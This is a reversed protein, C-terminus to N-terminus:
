LIKVELELDIKHNIKVQDRVLEILEMVDRFSAGGPNIIFNAHRTSIEARGIRRGKLGLIEILQGGTFQLDKPNKFICGASPIDLVQKSKKIGLFDRSRGILTKPSLGTRKLRLLAELVVFDSLNSSYSKFVLDKKTLRKPKGDFDIAELSEVFEGINRYIPNNGGGANMFVAGGVSGPIGILSELGELGEMCCADILKSLELGAGVKVTEGRILCGKFFPSNLKIVVGRFGQDRVLINSGKGVIFAPVGNEKSLNLAHRLDRTDEPEVWIDCPGGINFTTHPALVEDFKVKGRISKKFVERLNRVMERKKRAGPNKLKESLEDAIDKIDGAGLVLIADGSKADQAVCDSIDEKKVMVVDRQGSSRACDYISRVSVGEIPEESAAYIDTLVLRDAGKFCKGFEDALYKTRSYRHPQFIVILRKPRWNSSAEIVARIETPHHAYDEILLIGRTNARLQFRRKTGRFDRIYRCADDFGLGAALGVSISALSNLVNYTGPIKLRVEGMDKGRYVCRYRTNFKYMRIDEPHIEGKKSLGFTRTQGKHGKLVKNTNEDDANYFLIGGKKVNKIFSSYTQLLHKTDKYYDVHEMEINTIVAYHPKLYLFTGDSEDVEAVVWEGNGAKANSKLYDIEGGIAVTPDLGAKAMMVSILSATTTKGHTGTVAIGKKRNMLEGLLSARHAIFIGKERAKLIEPNDASIASSYVVGGIDRSLNKSNHGKFIRAGLNELDGTLNNLALDSGTVRYGKELLIKAIASM